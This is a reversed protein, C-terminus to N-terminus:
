GYLRGIMRDWLRDSFLTHMLPMLHAMMGIKYRPRPSRAQVARMIIGAAQEPTLYPISQQSVKYFADVLSRYPSDAPVSLSDAASHALPTAVPGPQIVVVDIGFPKLEFRLAENISEVAYKTSHYAGALPFTFEGGMSSINIIRGRKQQRMAPIVLQAMRVLGFVNTQYQHVWQEHTITEIPGMRGYGANNILVDIAGHRAEIQQVANVMSQEDTVDLRLPHAGVSQITPFNAEHRAGGYTAYGASVAMKATANGIGSNSGTILVVKERMTHTM